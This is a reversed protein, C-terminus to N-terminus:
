FLIQSHICKQSYPLVNMIIKMKCFGFVLSLSILYSAWPCVAALSYCFLSYGRFKFGARDIRKIGYWGAM